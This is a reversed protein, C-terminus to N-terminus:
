KTEKRSSVRDHLVTKKKWNKWILFFFLFSFFTRKSERYLFRFPLFACILLAICPPFIEMNVLNRTLHAYDIQPYLFRFTFTEKEHFDKKEKSKASLTSTPVPSVRTPRKIKSKGDEHIDLLLIYSLAFSKRKWLAQIFSLFQLWLPCYQWSSFFSSSHELFFAGQPQPLSSAIHIFLPVFLKM